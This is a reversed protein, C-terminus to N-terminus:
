WWWWLIDARHCMIEYVVPGLGVAGVGHMGFPTVVHRAVLLVEAFVEAQQVGDHLCTLGVPRGAAARVAAPSGAAHGPQHIEGDAGDASCSRRYIGGRGTHHPGRSLGRRPDETFRAPRPAAQYRVQM